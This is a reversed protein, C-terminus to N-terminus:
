VNGKYWNWTQRIGEKLNTMPMWNLESKAKSIDLSIHKVDGPRPPSHIKDISYSTVKKMVDILDLLSTQIGTGANYTENRTSNM